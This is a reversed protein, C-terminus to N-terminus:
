EMGDFYHKVPGSYGPPVRENALARDAEDKYNDPVDLLKKTSSEDGQTLRTDFTDIHGSEDIEGDVGAILTEAGDLQMPKYFQEFDDIISDNTRNSNRDEDKHGSTTDHTGEDEWTHGEGAVASGDDSPTM